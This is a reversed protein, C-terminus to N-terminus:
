QTHQVKQSASWLFSFDGKYFMRSSIKSFCSNNRKDGRLNYGRSQESCKTKNILTALCIVAWTEILSFSTSFYLKSNKHALFKMIKTVRTKLTPCKSDQVANLGNFLVLIM